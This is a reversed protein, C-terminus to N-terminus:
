EDAPLQCVLDKGDALGDIERAVAAFIALPGAAGGDDKVVDEHLAVVVVVQLLEDVFSGLFGVLYQQSQERLGSACVCKVLVAM